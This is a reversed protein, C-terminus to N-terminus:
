DRARGLLRLGKALHDIRDVRALSQRRPALGTRSVARLAGEFRVFGERQYILHMAANTTVKSNGLVEITHGLHLAQARLSHIGFLECPIPKMELSFQAHAM